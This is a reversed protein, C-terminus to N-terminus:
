SFYHDIFFQFNEQYPARFVKENIQDFAIDHLTYEYAHLLQYKAYTNKQFPRHLEKTCYKPDGVLPHGISGLHARIQHTKGTVLHIKVWSIRHEDNTRIPVISTEIPKWQENPAYDLIEAKNKNVEKFLYGKLIIPELILGHVVAHYVKTTRHDRIAENIYRLATPHKGIISVGTTNRDLRNCVGITETILDAKKENMYQVFSDSLNADKGNPQSLMDVPKNYIFVDDDEYIIFSPDLETGQRQREKEHFKLYTDEGLYFKVSDGLQVKESGSIKKDNLVINKKRYMKYLFSKSANPLIKFCYRDVRLGVYDKTVIHEKM